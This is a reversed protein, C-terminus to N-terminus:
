SRAELDECDVRLVGPSVLHRMQEYIQMNHTLDRLEHMLLQEYDAASNLYKRFGSKLTRRVAI